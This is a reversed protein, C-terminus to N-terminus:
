LGRSRVQEQQQEQARQNFQSDLAESQRSSAEVSQSVAQQRDVFTRQAAPDGPEGQVAFLGTGDPRAVVHDIQRMGSVKSEYALQGAAREAEQPNAFLPKLGAQARQQELAQLKDLAQGFRANDAHGPDRMSAPAAPEARAPAASQTAAKVADPADVQALTKRGAKGDDDLGNNAQFQKVAALTDKGYVGDAHLPRGDAGAYGLAALKGQLAKVEDGREGQKLVGDAMPAQQASRAAQAAEPGQAQVKGGLTIRDNLIDGLYRRYQDPEVEIHAHVAGPSGVDSQRVLPAGYEVFDGNKYPISGREGHLVQGVLERRADDLPHSYISISNTGDNNLKVYGAVPSPVMLSRGGSRDTLILDKQVLPIGNVDGRRRVAELEGEVMEASRDVRSADGARVAAANTNPHHIKLERFAEEGSIGHRLTRNSGGNGFPEVVSIRQGGPAAAAAPGSHREPAPAAAPAAPAAPAPTAPRHQAAEAQLAGRTGADAMGTAPLHHRQQFTNLAHQSGAGLYGDATIAKGHADTLGLAAMDRQLGRAERDIASLTAPGAKGDVPTLGHDRQFAEVAQRTAADFQRDPHIAQAGAGGYGLTHLNHELKEVARGSSGEKLVQASGGAHHSRAQQLAVRIDPDSGETAPAFDRSGVKLHARDMEASHQAYADEYGAAVDAAALGAYSPTRHRIATAQDRLDQYDGGRKLVAELGDLRGPLQNATKAILAIAEFRKDEAIGSGHKDLMTMAIHTANRVQPYDIHTHIWQKGEPSGAWANISDRTPADIFRISSRKGEGNGHSLLDARLDARDHTFPLNHAKAYASAQGIVGDVYTTEGPKLKREETAGLPWEGRQGFDVQITGLSYGSNDRVASVTGWQPENLNRTIGAISLHYSSGGGETGRGVAFFVAGATADLNRTDINNPM